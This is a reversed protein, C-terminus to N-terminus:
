RALREWEEPTGADPFVTVVTAEPPLGAAIERAVLWNAAASSGIRVGTLDFFDGMGALANPYSVSRHELEEDYSRVFPQRIGNGLGGSGAYKPKGNPPEKSGYPLEAPTVAIARVQPHVGRLARLVGVLTGGTGISAIWVDPRAVGLQSVIEAGTSGEHFSVNAYNRHQYLLTWDPETEAIRLATRMVELFGLEKDVLDVRAGRSDLLRLLSPASASSLVVRVSIGLLAGLEALAAALSGGSYELIRIEELPRDGHKRVADCVLAYAVRDKISGTPNEWECKALVRAGGPAAAVERLPTGGLVARFKRLAPWREEAETFDAAVAEGPLYEAEVPGIM